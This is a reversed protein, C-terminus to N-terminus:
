ERRGCVRATRGLHALWPRLGARAKSFPVVSSNSAHEGRSLSSDKNDAHFVISVLHPSPGELGQPDSSAGTRAGGQFCFVQFFM